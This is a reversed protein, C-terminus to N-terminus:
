DEQTRVGDLVADMKAHWYALYDAARTIEVEAWTFHPPELFPWVANPATLEEPERSPPYTTIYTIRWEGRPDPWPSKGILEEPAAMDPYCALVEGDATRIIARM